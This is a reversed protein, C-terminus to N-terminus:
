MLLEIDFLQDLPNIYFIKVCKNKYINSFIHRSGQAM